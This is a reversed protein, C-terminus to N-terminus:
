MGAPPLGCHARTKAARKKSQVATSKVSADSAVGKRGPAQPPQRDALRARQLGDRHTFPNSLRSRKAAPHRTLRDRGDQQFGRSFVGSPATRRRWVRCFTAECTLNAHLKYTTAVH